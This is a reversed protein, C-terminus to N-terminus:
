LDIGCRPNESSFSKSASASEGRKKLEVGLGRSFISRLDIGEPELPLSVDNGGDRQITSREARTEDVLILVAIRVSLNVRISASSSSSSSLPHSRRPTGAFLLALVIVLKSNASLARPVSRCKCRSFPAGRRVQAYGRPRM